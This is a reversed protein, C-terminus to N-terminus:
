VPMWPRTDTPEPVPLEPDPLVPHSCAALALLICILAALAARLTLRPHSM